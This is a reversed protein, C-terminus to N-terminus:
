LEDLGFQLDCNELLWGALAEKARDAAARDEASIAAGSAVSEHFGVILAIQEQLEVPVLLEISQYYEVAEAPSRTVVISTPGAVDRHDEGFKAAEFRDCFMATEFSAAPTTTTVVDGCERPVAETVAQNATVFEPAEIASEFQDYFQSESIRGAALDDAAPAMGALTEAVVVWEPRLDEPM